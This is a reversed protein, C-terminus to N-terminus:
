PLACAARAEMKECFLAVKMLEQSTANGKIYNARHSIVQVNGKVYGKSNDIRDLSPSNTYDGRKGISLPIGLVPCHSPIQIDALVLDFELGKSKARKKARALMSSRQYSAYSRRQKRAKIKSPNKAAYKSSAKLVAARYSPNTKNKEYWERKKRKTRQESTEATYM